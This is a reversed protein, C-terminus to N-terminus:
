IADGLLQRARAVDQAIQAVLEDPGAFRKEDRLRAAFAVRVRAGYLDGSFDLVHVELRRAGAGFTPREGLNAVAGRAPASGAALLCAYVGAAPLTENVPEVNATPFGITRGRGDGTVVTGDVFFRRGLMREAEEVEGAALAARVRTSSIPQGQHLVPDITRVRFGLAAGLRALVAPDGSRGRGFRFNSGVVVAGARLCGALVDRAFADADLAAVEKTFPLVALRDIGLGALLEAKQETTVLTAPAREPHLVRAPHPDFALVVARGGITLAERATEEALRAHGLHVGDFNGLSVAVSGWGPPV